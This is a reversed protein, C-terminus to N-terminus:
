SLKWLFLTNVALIAHLVNRAYGGPYLKLSNPAMPMRRDPQDCDIHM